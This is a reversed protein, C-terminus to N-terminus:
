EGPIPTLKGVPRTPVSPGDRPISVVGYGPINMIQPPNVQNDLWQQFQAPPLHSRWFEYDNATDNNAPTLAEQRKAELMANLKERDFGRDAEAEKQRALNPGFQPAMGGYAMLADGLIGAITGLTQGTNHQRPIDGQPLSALDALTLGRVQQPQMSESAIEPQVLDGGDGVGGFSYPGKAPPAIDALTRPKRQPALAVATGKPASTDVGNVLGAIGQRGRFPMQGFGPLTVHVHDSEPLIRAQPGFYQRLADPTAGVYDAANGALHQSNPVGGVLKNGLYTRRGSTMRGPANLPNAFLAALAAMDNLM